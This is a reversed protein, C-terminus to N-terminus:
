ARGSLANILSQDPIVKWTHGSQALHLTMSITVTPLDSMLTELAAQQLVDDVLESRYQGDDGYLESMDSAVAVREQMREVALSGIKEVADNVDLATLEMDMSLGDATTYLGSIAKADLQARYTDWVLAAVPDVDVPVEGLASPDLLYEAAETLSGENIAKRFGEACQRAKEPERLIVPEAQLGCFIAIIGVIISLFGMISLVISSIKRGTM